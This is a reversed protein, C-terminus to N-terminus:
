IMLWSNLPQSWALSVAEKISASNMTVAAGAMGDITATLTVAGAGFRKVVIEHGDSGGAGLTMAVAGAANVLAVNDAPSIAGSATYTSSLLLLPAAGAGGAGSVAAWDVGAVHRNGTTLRKWGLFPQGNVVAPASSAVFHGTVYTGSAPQAASSFVTASLMRGYNADGPDCVEIVHTFDEGAAPVTGVGQNATSTGIAAPNCHVVNRRLVNLVGAAQSVPLKVNRFHNGEIDAGSLFALYLAISPSGASGWTGNPGRGSSKFFPDGDLTNGAIRIRQNSIVSTPWFIGFQGFDAIQNGVIELGDYDMDSVAYDFEIANPGTTQIINGAIRSNRMAGTVHIGAHSLMAETMAGNYAGFVGVQLATGYGWQSWASVAPLTRVLTNGEVRLWHGGPSAAAGTVSNSGDTNSQGNLYFNGVGAGYLDTVSGIASVPMGPASAGGGAQRSSGGVRIYAAVTSGPIFGSPDFVDEIVNDIIQVGLNPTNGQHYFADFGVNIGSVRARRIVNGSIVATKAGLVHIGPGDSITNGAIVVGSRVPAATADNSHVSISDDGSMSIQNDTITVNAVDWVAISDFNSRAVRNGRVMVDSGAVLGLSFGRADLFECDQVSVNSINKLQVLFVSATVNQGNQGRTGQLTMDRLHVDAIPTWTAGAGINSIGANSGGAGGGGKSDDIFLVTKGRGAGRLVVGAKVVVSAASMDIRYKGAPLFVEGGMPLAAAATIAANIAAATATTGNAVAGFDLVNLRDAGRTALSRATTAGTPKVTAASADAVPLAGTLDGFKGSSAVKALGAVDAAALAGSGIVQGKSNVVVKAYTGPATIDPLTAVVTGVGVGTVDGLLTTPVVPPVHAQVFATTALANSADGAPQTPATPTGQFAPSDLPALQAPDATLQGNSIALGPGVGVPEPAGPGIGVRGLLMGSAITLKPQTGGLLLDVPAANTTGNQEIALLDGGSVTTALPLQDFTPM